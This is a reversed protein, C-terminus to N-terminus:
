RSPKVPRDTGHYRLRYNQEDRLTILEDSIAVYEAFLPNEAQRQRIESGRVHGYGAAILAKCNRSSADDLKAIKTRLRPAPLTSLDIM